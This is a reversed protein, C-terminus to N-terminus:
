RELTETTTDYNRVAAANGLSVAYIRGSGEDPGCSDESSAGPSLYTTFYVVGGVTLPSALSMESGPMLGLRWGYGLDAVCQSGEQLCTNTVDGLDTHTLGSNIGNGSIVQRDKIM